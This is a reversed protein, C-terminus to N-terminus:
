GCCACSTHAPSIVQVDQLLQTHDSDVGHVHLTPLVPYRSMRSTHQLGLSQAQDSNVDHEHLIPGM